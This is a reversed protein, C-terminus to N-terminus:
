YLGSALEMLEFIYPILLYGEAFYMSYLYWIEALDAIFLV